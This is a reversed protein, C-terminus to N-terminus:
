LCVSKGTKLGIYTNEMKGWDEEMNPIYYTVHCSGASICDFIRRTYYRESNEQNVGLSFKCKQIEKYLTKRDAWPIWPNTKFPFYRGFIHLKYERKIDLITKIRLDTNPFNKKHYYGGGFFVDFTRNKFELNPKIIHSAGQYLTFVKKIGFNAYKNFVQKSTTNIFLIDLVSSWRVVAGAPSHWHPDCYWMVFKIKPNSKKIRLMEAKPFHPEIGFLFIDPKEDCIRTYFKDFEKKPIERKVNQSLESGFSCVEVNQNRIESEFEKNRFSFLKM